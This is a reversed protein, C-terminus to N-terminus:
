RSEIVTAGRADRTLRVPLMDPLGRLFSQPQRLPFSGSLRLTRLKEQPGLRLPQPLYDNWRDLVEPLPTNDFVLWGHRWAGVDETQVSQRQSLGRSDGQVGDGAELTLQPAADAPQDASWVGVKGEAVAVQTGTPRASVTFVTGLVRVRGWDTQVTFPQAPAHQVKFRAEGSALRVERRDRYYAVSLRTRAALNIETGDPLMQDRLQGPGSELTLTFTPQQWWWRTGGATLVAIGAGALAQIARRRSRLDQREPLGVQERLASGDTADWLRQAADLAAAHTADLARWQSLRQRAADASDADGAHVRGVLLLAEELLRPPISSAHMASHSM